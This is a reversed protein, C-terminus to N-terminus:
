EQPKRGRHQARAEAVDHRPVPAPAPPAYITWGKRQYHLTFMDVLSPHCRITNLGGNQDVFTLLADVSEAM